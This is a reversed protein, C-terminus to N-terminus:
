TQEKKSGGGKKGVVAGQSRNPSECKIQSLVTTTIERLEPHEPSPPARKEVVKFTCSPLSDVTAECVDGAALPGVGAPTGSFILDGPELREVESLYSLIEAPNWIMKRLESRQKEAGNVTLCINRGNLDHGFASAPVLEGVPGSM